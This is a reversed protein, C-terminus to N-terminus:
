IVTEIVTHNSIYVDLKDYFKVQHKYHHKYLATYGKLIEHFQATEYYKRCLRLIYRNM